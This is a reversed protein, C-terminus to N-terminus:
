RNRLSKILEKKYEELGEIIDEPVELGYMLNKKINLKDNRLKNLEKKKCGIQKLYFLAPAKQKSLNNEGISEMAIYPHSKAELAGIMNITQIENEELLMSIENVADFGKEGIYINEPACYHYKSKAQVAGSHKFYSTELKEAQSLSLNLIQSKVEANKYHMQLKILKIKEIILRTLYLYDNYERSYTNNPLYKIYPNNNPTHKAFNVVETLNYISSLDIHNKEVYEDLGEEKLLLKALNITIDSTIINTKNDFIFRAVNEWDVKKIPRVKDEVNEAMDAKGIKEWFENIDIHDNNKLFEPIILKEM